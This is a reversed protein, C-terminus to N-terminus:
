KRRWRGSADQYLHGSPAKDILKKAALKGVPGITTGNRKAIAAYKARRKANVDAVLARLDPSPNSVAIGVYGDLQEGVEGAKRADALAGAFAPAATLALSLLACAAGRILTRRRIGRTRM